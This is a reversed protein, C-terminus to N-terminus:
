GNIRVELLVDWCPQRAAGFSGRRQWAGGLEYILKSSGRMTTAMCTDHFPLSSSLPHTTCSYTNTEFTQINKGRGKPFHDLKVSM